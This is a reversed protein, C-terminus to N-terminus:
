LNCGFRANGDIYRHEESQSLALFLVFYVVTVSPFNSVKSNRCNICAVNRRIRDDHGGAFSMPTRGEVSPPSRAM